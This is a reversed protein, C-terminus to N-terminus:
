TSSAATIGEHSDRLASYCTGNAKYQAEKAMERKQIVGRGVVTKNKKKTGHCSGNVFVARKSKPGRKTSSNGGKTFLLFFRNARIV